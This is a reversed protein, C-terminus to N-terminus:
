LGFKSAYKLLSSTAGELRSIDQYPLLNTAIVQTCYFQSTVFIRFEVFAPISQRTNNATGPKTCLYCKGHLLQIGFKTEM